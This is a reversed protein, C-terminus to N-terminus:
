HMQVFEEFSAPNQAPLEIADGMREFELGGDAGAGEDQVIMNHLILCTTM